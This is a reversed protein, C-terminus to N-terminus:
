LLNDDILLPVDRQGDYWRASSWEWDSPEAVLGRRVPNAHVYEIMQGLTDYRRVNRDYGGGRQWFRATTKGSPQRDALRDLWSPSNQRLYDLAWRAVPWKIAKLITSVQCDSARPHILLHVHEPMIVYAWVDFKHRQRARHISDVLWRRTRDKSLLPIRRFCTFTLEHADGPHDWRKCTKFKIRRPPV